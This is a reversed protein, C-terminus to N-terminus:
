GDEALVVATGGGGLGGLGGLGGHAGSEAAAAARQSPHAARPSHM